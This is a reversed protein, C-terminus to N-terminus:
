WFIMVVVVTVIYGGLTQIIDVNAASTNLTSLGVEMSGTVVTDYICAPDGLCMNRVEETINLNESFEPQHTLYGDNIALYSTSGISYNFLSEEETM